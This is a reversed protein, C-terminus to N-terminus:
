VFIKSVEDERVVLVKNSINVDNSVNQTIMMVTVGLQNLINCINVVGRSDLAGLSEDLLLLDLGKGHASLNILHQIGLISALFIRSREGGSYGMFNQAYKGKYVALVDIKERVSGDKNIKFGNIEVTMSSRFKKLFSNTIGEIIKVSRNALYTAFGNKGMYYSWYEVMSLEETLDSMKKKADRIKQEVEKIKEDCQKVIKASRSNNKIDDIEREIETIRKNFREVNKKEEEIDREVDKANQKARRAKIELQDVEDISENVKRLGAKKKGILDRIYELSEETEKILKKAQKVTLDYNSEPIFKHGCEPCEVAGSIDAKLDKIIQEAESEQEELSKIKSRIKKRKEELESVDPLNGILAYDTSSKISELKRTYEEVAASAFQIKDKNLKIQKEMESIEHNDDLAIAEARQESYFQLKGEYTGIQSSIDNSDASLRKKDNSLKELIPNIMDANTIRNLVEKKEGDGATFFQYRNDQSIIFYRLLDDRTVGILDIVRANAENVSVIQTNQEGDEYVEVKTSKSGRFFKRIVGLTRNLTANELYLEVECSESHRNIFVEKDIDRLSKGTLAIAIGEFITSKGAGNNDSDDDDRNEGFIVTCVGQKFEYKTDVHGFLNKIHIYKPTWM